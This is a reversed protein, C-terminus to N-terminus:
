SDLELVESDFQKLFWEPTPRKPMPVSARDLGNIEGISNPPYDIDPRKQDWLTRRFKFAKRGKKDTYIVPELSLFFLLANRKGDLRRRKSKITFELLVRSALGFPGSVEVESKLSLCHRNIWRSMPHAIDRVWHGGGVQNRYKMNYVTLPMIPQRDLKKIRAYEKELYKAPNSWVSATKNLPNKTQV